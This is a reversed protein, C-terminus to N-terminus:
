SSALGDAMVSAPGPGLWPRRSPSACRCRVASLEYRQICRSLTRQVVPVLAMGVISSISYSCEEFLTTINKRTFFRYHTRDLIGYDRYTWEGRVVLAWVTPYHRINPISTLVCGGPALLERALRLAAAPDTLHELVDNLVVCDFYGRPLDVQPAFIDEVVRDMRTAAIAAATAVPEVGWVEMPRSQTVSFGFGGAGCGVDLLRKCKGPVFSLTEPRVLRVYDESKTDYGGPKTTAHAPDGPSNVLSREREPIM